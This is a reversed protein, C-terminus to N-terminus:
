SAEKLRYPLEREIIAQVNEVYDSIFKRKYVYVYSPHYISVFTIENHVWSGNTIKITKDHKKHQKLVFDSVKKGLLFVISPKITNLEIDFNEQCALMEEHNPYRLKKNDNLPLCKVINTKYFQLDDFKSEIDAVIKGSNTNAALPTDDFLSEVKKASLGVWMVNASACNDLLPKQNNCLNCNSCISINKM